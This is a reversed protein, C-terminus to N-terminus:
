RITAVSPNVEAGEGLVEWARGYARGMSGGSRHRAAGEGYRGRGTPARTGPGAPASRGPMPRRPVSRPRPRRPALPRPWRRAPPGGSDSPPIPRAGRRGARRGSPADRWSKGGELGGLDDLQSAQLRHGPPQVDGVPRTLLQGALGDGVADDWRDA